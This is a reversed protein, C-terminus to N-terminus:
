AKSGGDSVEAFAGRWQGTPVHGGRRTAGRCREGGYLLSNDGRARCAMGRGAPGSRARMFELAPLDVESRGFQAVRALIAAALNRPPGAEGVVQRLIERVEEMSHSHQAVRVRFGRNM